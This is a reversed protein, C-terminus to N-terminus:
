PQFARPLPSVTRLKVITVVAGLARQAGMWVRIGAGSATGGSATEAILGEDEVARIAPSRPQPRTEAFKMGTPWALVCQCCYQAPAAAAPRRASRPSQRKARLM